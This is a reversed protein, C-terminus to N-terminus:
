DSIKINNVYLEKEALIGRPEVDWTIGEPVDCNYYLKDGETRWDIRIVGRPHPVSGKAWTVMSTQPQFLISDPSTYDPWGLDAGLIHRTMHYTPGGSWAHSLTGQGGGDSGDGFNEWATDNHKLIMPSWYKKMYHEATAAYGKRYLADIVYFGGYPTSLRNRDESGIDRLSEAYFKELKEEQEPTTQGFLTPWISSIPYYHDIAVGNRFGDRFAGKDDDWCLAQMADLTKREEELFWPEDGKGLLESIYAMSRFCYAALSQIATLNANKDIRTWEIFARGHDLLGNDLRGDAMIKMMNSYGDYYKEAYDLDGTRNVSWVWSLLTLLPYDAMHNVSVHNREEGPAMLDNYMQAYLFTCQKMLRSDGSGALTIAYEPLADGAYLGRERFPTDTYSDESCVLLTRWGLDWIANLMTDSCEFDGVKEFPYTQSIMGLDKLELEGDFGSLNVQLYRAGYPKFSELHNNGEGTTFKLATYLGPRKLIWPRGNQLDEAFAIDIETGASANIDLFFRGLTKRGLDYVLAVPRDGPFYLTGDEEVPSIPEDFYSWAVNWAPNDAGDDLTQPEWGASLDPLDGPKAFPLDLSRVIEEEENTFPGATMFKVQDDHKESPSLEVGASNPVAMYFEWNAWVIGYKIFFFNWGEDLDLIVDSRVPRGPEIGLNELPGKGNLWYEGWWLGTRVKQKKPSWIYTYAFVYKNQGFDERTRDASKVRFSYIQEDTQLTWAGLMKSVSRPDQTLHPITRPTLEGWHDQDNKPVVAKWDRDDFEPQAWDSPDQRADYVEMVGTAFSLKPAERDYGKMERCVWNGPTSFRHIVKEGSKVEGWAILGAKSLPVQYTYTGNSLGKIAVVNTGEKLMPSIDYTDYQPHEPYFRAPGFNVFEGNVLLHYRSDAFIHILADADADGEVTFVNRFMVYDARGAGESSSWVYVPDNNGSKCSVLSAITLVILAFKRM